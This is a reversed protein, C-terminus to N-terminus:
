AGFAISALRHLSQECYEPEAGDRAPLSMRNHWFVPMGVNHAGPVDAASGAVFLTREPRTGLARLATRYPEPRPKYFGASEATIVVKFLDGVREAATRGLRESCNTVVALPLRDALTALVGPAEPWPEIESWRSELREALSGPLGVDVAAERVLAGYPRYAGCGYTIELYRQRWRRGDASSGAVSNWLTWSDLLATLLDFVVADYRSTSTVPEVRQGSKCIAQADISRM